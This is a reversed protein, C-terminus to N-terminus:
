FALFVAVICYKERTAYLGMKNLIELPSTLAQMLLMSIRFFRTSSPKHVVKSCTVPISGTDVAQFATTIAM